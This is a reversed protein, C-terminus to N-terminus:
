GRSVRRGTRRVGAPRGYVQFESLAMLNDGSHGEILGRQNALMTVEIRTVARNGRRVRFGTLRHNDAPGYTRVGLSVWRRVDRYRPRRKGRRKIKVRVRALTRIRLRRVSASDDDSCSSGPDVAIRSVDVARPLRVVVRKPGGPGKSPDAPSVSTSAWSTAQSTDFAADPGCEYSTWDPKSFRGLQAGSGIAVWDRYLSFDRARSSGDYEVGDFIAPRYGPKVLRIPPLKGGPPAPVGNMAYRGRTGSRSALGGPGRIEVSVGALPRRSARERIVGSIRGCATDVGCVPAPGFDPKPHVDGSGTDSAWYGMGRSAFVSWIRADNDIGGDAVDAQLIANRMDLFSPDPPSLEMARTVLSRVEDRGTTEGLDAVLRQRLQWLTQAWIEGDAHVEPRNTVRGMDGLTYGGGHGTKGGPCGPHLSGVACDLAESRITRVDHGTMYRGPRIEGDEATDPRDLGQSELYDMAYWDSWGEGMARAQHSDLGNRGSGDLVLRDSLGHAYEHYVVSADDGGNAEPRVSAPFNAADRFLYMQMRPSEGDPPTFMNANNLHQRDPTGPIDDAGKATDAGDLIEALVPDDGEFNGAEPTFGFPPDRLWDHFNNVFWYVQTGNQRLNPRWGYGFDFGPNTTYSWSCRPFVADCADSLNASFPNPQFTYHWEPAPGPSSPTIEGCEPCDASPADPLDDDNVDTYTHANSGQLKEPDTDWSGPFALDHQQGAAVSCEPCAADINPAYEWVRGTAASVTNARFLIRGSEADIVYEYIEDPSVNATVRWALRLSEPTDAFFTLQAEDGGRFRTASDATAAQSRVPPPATSEGANRLARGLSARAGLEPSAASHRHLGSVPSGMVNLIRGDAALNVILGNRFLEIGDVSQSWALHTTGTIDTYDRTLTLGDLDRASLGLAAAHRRVWALAVTEPDGDRPRRLFGDLDAVMRPTGTAPDLELVGQRGLTGRLEAGAPSLHPQGASPSVIAKAAFAPGALLVIGTLAALGALRCIGARTTRPVETSAGDM